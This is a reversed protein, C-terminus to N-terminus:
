PLRPAESLSWVAVFVEISKRTLYVAWNFICSILPHGCIVAASRYMGLFSPLTPGGAAILSHSSKMREEKLATPFSAVSFNSHKWTFVLTECEPRKEFPATLYVYLIEQKIYLTYILIILLTITWGFYCKTDIGWRREDLFTAAWNDHTNPKPQDSM